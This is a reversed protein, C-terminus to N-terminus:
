LYCNLRITDQVVLAPIMESSINILVPKQFDDLADMADSSYIDEIFSDSQECKFLGGILYIHPNTLRTKQIAKTLLGAIEKSTQKVIELAIPDNNNAQSFVIRAVAAINAPTTMNTNIPAILHAAQEVNFLEKIPETISTFESPDYESEIAAKIGAIGVSYGCGQDGIRHGLGGFRWQTDNNKMFCISGTGAILIGGSEHVLELSMAADSFVAIKESQFGIEEVISRLAALGEVRGAGAFGGIFAAENILQEAPTREAGVRAELILAKLIQKVHDKGYTTINSSKGWHSLMGQSENEKFLPYEKGNMDLIKLETKSAGGELCFIYQSSSIADLIEQSAMLKQPIFLALFFVSISLFLTRLKPKSFHM